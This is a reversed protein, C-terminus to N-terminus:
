AHEGMLMAARAAMFKVHAREIEAKLAEAELDAKAPDTDNLFSELATFADSMPGRADLVRQLLTRTAASVTRGEKARLSNLDIARQTLTTVDQVAALVRDAQAIFTEGRRESLAREGTEAPEEESSGAEPEHDDDHDVLVLDGKEDLTWDQGYLCVLALDALRRDDDTIEDDVKLEPPKYDSGMGDKLHAVVHNYVGQRDGAPINAPTRGGNLVAVTASCAAMNAAGVTGDTSVMHHGFKWTGKVEPDGKPDGWASFMKLAAADGNKIRAKMASGAWATKVTDTHHVSCPGNPTMGAKEDVDDHPEAKGQQMCMECDCAGPDYPAECNPCAKCTDMTIPDAKAEEIKWAALAADLKAADVLAELPYRDIIHPPLGLRESLFMLRRGEVRAEDTVALGKVAMVATEPNMGLLVPSWELWEGDILDVVDTEENYLAKKIRIGVSFEDITGFKLDSYAERGRQTDLNFQGRVWLGGLSRIREPLLADGPPLERADQTIAVPTFWDHSWVGKIRLRGQENRKSAISQAFFGPLIRENGHDVNNFVAVVAEVIGQGNSEFAKYEVEPFFLRKYTNAQAVTRAQAM